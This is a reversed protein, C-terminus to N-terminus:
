GLRPMQIYDRRVFEASMSNRPLKPNGAMFGALMPEIEDETIGRYTALKVHKKFKGEADNIYMSITLTGTEKIDM